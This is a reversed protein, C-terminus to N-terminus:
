KLDVNNISFIKTKFNKLNSVLQLKKHSNLIAEETDVTNFINQNHTSHNVNNGSQKNKAGIINGNNHSNYEVKCQKMPSIYESNFQDNINNLNLTPIMDPKKQFKPPDINIPTYISNDISKNERGFPDSSLFSAENFNNNDSQETKIEGVIDDIPIGKKNLTYLLQMIKMEKDKRINNEKELRTNLERLGKNELSLNKFDRLLQKHTYFNVEDASNNDISEMYNKCFKANMNNVLVEMDKIYIDRTQILNNLEQIEQEKEYLKMKIERIELDVKNKLNEYEYHLNNILTETEKKNTNNNINYIYNNGM